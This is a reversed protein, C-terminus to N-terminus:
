TVFVVDQIELLSPSPARALSHIEVARIRSQVVISAPINFPRGCTITM